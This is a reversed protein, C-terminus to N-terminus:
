KVKVQDILQQYVESFEPRDEDVFEGIIIKDGLEEVTMETAKKLSIASNKIWRFLDIPEPFDNKRGFYTPCPSIIEVLSFGKHALAKKWSKMYQRPHAVTWRAIYTAGSVRALEVADINPELYGWKATTTKAGHPTTPASQGGTMGYVKNHLLTVLMDINRRCGHIFHNTGISLLDGDGAICIPKLEPKTLKAGTATCITRGHLTMLSYGPLVVPIASYCGVGVFFPYKTADLNEEAFFRCFNMAISGYGCGRCFIHLPQGLMKGSMTLKGIPHGPKEEPPRVYTM